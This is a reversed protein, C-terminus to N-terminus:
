IQSLKSILETYSKCLKITEDKEHLYLVVGPKILDFCYYDGNGVSGFPFLKKGQKQFIGYTEIANGKSATSLSLNRAYPIEGLGPVSVVTSKLAGGNISGITKCYDKPLSIGLDNLIKKVEDQSLTKRIGIWEM